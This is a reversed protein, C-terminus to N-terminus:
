SAANATSNPSEEQKMRPELGEPVSGRTVYYIALMGLGVSLPLFGALLWVGRGLTWLGLLLGLGSSATIAGAWLIGRNGQRGLRQSRFLADLDVGREVLAVRERYAIYRMIATFALVAIIVVSPSLLILFNYLEM